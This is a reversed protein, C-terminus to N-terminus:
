QQKNRMMAYITADPHHYCVPRKTTCDWGEAVHGCTMMYMRDTPVITNFEGCNEQQPLDDPIHEQWIILDDSM